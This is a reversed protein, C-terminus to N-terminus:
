GEALRQMAIQHYGADLEIGLWRRGLAKAAMLSSGSGAFPDLVLDGPRSFSAVLHQMVELPKQTPHLKNGTYRWGIVDSIPEAPRSPYGKALLHAAEHQYRVFGSSNAYRKPFLLHGVVRFGASRYANMFKDAHPWGYFSVAFSNNALVRYLESFAPVLWRGSDDNPVTRGSRDRYRALYPPDTLVMAASNASLTPLLTLCDGHLITNESM